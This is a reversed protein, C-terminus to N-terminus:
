AFDGEKGGSATFCNSDGRNDGKKLPPINFFYFLLQEGYYKLIGRKRTRTGRKSFSPDPSIKEKDHRVGCISGYPTL